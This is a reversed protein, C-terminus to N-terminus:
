GRCAATPAQGLRGGADTAIRSLVDMPLRVGALYDDICRLVLPSRLRSQQSQLQERTLWHTRVIGRDLTLGPEGESVSGCFTVRLFSRRNEPHTWLYIGTVAEPAFHHATEERTERIVAELLTEGPELHGAPQNIVLRRSAREEVVLYRGEREAIAAVTVEARLAM